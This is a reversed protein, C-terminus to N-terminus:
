ARWRPAARRAKQLGADLDVLVAIIAIVVLLEILTFGIPADFERNRISRM